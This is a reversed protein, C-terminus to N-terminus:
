TWRAELNNLRVITPPHFFSQSDGIILAGPFLGHTVVLGLDATDKPVDFVLTREFSRGPPMKTTLDQGGTGMADLAIQGQPSPYYRHGALDILCVGVDTERQARRRAANSVKVTVVYFIGRANAAAPPNGVLSQRAAREVTICWEDFCQREGMRLVNPRSALSVAMLLAAYLAAGFGLRRLVQASRAWRRGSAYYTACLLSVVATLFCAIFVLDFIRM